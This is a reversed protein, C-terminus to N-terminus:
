MTRRFLPLPNDAAGQYTVSFEESHLAERLDKGSKLVFANFGARSLFFLQDRGVDGIARLQERYGYRERLLRATSYGRGDVFQPFEVAIVSFDDVDAAIAEPEEDPALLVGMPLGHEHERLILEERRARWVSLPVLLPWLPLGVTEANDGAPVELLRWPDNAVRYGNEDKIIVNSM